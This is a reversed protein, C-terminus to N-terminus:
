IYIYNRRGGTAMAFDDVRSLLIGEYNNENLFAKILAVRIPFLNNEM